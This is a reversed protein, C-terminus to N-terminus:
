LTNKLLRSTSIVKDQSKTWPEMARWFRLELEYSRILFFCFRSAEPDASALYLFNVINDFLSRNLAAADAHAYFPDNSIIHIISLPTSLIREGLYTFTARSVAALRNDQYGSYKLNNISEAILQGADAFARGYVTLIAFVRKTTLPSTKDLQRLSNRLRIYRLFRALLDHGMTM